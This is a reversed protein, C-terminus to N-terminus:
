VFRPEFRIDFALMAQKPIERLTFDIQTYGSKDIQTRHSAVLNPPEQAWGLSLTLGLLLTVVLITRRRM